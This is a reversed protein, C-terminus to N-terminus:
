LCTHTSRAYLYPPYANYSKLSVLQHLRVTLKKIRATTEFRRFNAARCYFIVKVYESKPETSMSGSFCYKCILVGNPRFYPLLKPQPHTAFNKMPQLSNSLLSSKSVCSRDGIGDDDGNWAVDRRTHIDYVKRIQLRINYTQNQFKHSSSCINYNTFSRSYSATSRLRTCSFLPFYTM